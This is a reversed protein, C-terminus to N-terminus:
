TLAIEAECTLRKIEFTPLIHAIVLYAGWQHTKQDSRSEVLFFINIYKLVTTSFISLLCNDPRIKPQGTNDSKQKIHLHQFYSSHAYSTPFTEYVWSSLSESIKQPQQVALPSEIAHLSSGIVGSTFFSSRLLHCVYENIQQRHRVIQIDIEYLFGCSIPPSDRLIDQRSISLFMWSIYRVWLLDVCGCTANLEFFWIEYEQDLMYHGCHGDCRDGGFNM